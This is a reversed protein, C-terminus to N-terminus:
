CLKKELVLLDYFSKSYNPRWFVNTDWFHFGYDNTYDFFLMTSFSVVLLCVKFVKM